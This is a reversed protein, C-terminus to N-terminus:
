VPGRSGPNKKAQKNNNKALMDIGDRSDNYQGLDYKSSSYAKQVAKEPLGSFGGSMKEGHYKKM